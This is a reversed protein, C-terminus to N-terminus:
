SVCEQAIHHVHINQMRSVTPNTHFQPLVCKQTM